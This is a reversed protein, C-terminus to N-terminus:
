NNRKADNVLDALGGSSSDGFTTSSESGMEEKMKPGGEWKGNRMHIPHDDRVDDQTFEYIGYEVMKEMIDSPRVAAYSSMRQMDEHTVDDGDVNEDFVKQWYEENDKGSDFPDGHEHETSEQTPKPPRGGKADGADDPVIDNLGM